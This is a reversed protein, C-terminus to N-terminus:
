EGSHRLRTSRRGHRDFAVRRGSRPDIIPDSLRHMVVVWGVVVAVGILLAVWPSLGFPVPEGMTVNLLGGLGIGAGVGVVALGAVFAVWMRPSMSFLLQILVNNSRSVRPLTVGEHAALERAYDRPPGFTEIPDEGSEALHSETEALVQGVRDGPVGLLRLQLILEDVYADSGPSANPQKNM